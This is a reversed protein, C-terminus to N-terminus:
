HNITKTSKNNNNNFNNFTIFYEKDLDIELKLDTKFFDLPIKIAIVLFNDKYYLAEM